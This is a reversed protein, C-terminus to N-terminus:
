IPIVWDKLNSKEAAWDRLIKEFPNFQGSNYSRWHAGADGMAYSAIIFARREWPSAGSYENLQDSLFSYEHWKAMALIVDRRVLPSRFRNYLAVLADQNETSKMESLIRVAYAAHLENDLVYARSIIHERIRACIELQHKAPLDQFSSKITIAVIPFLPYLAKLNDVLTLVANGKISSPLHRIASIIKKTLAGHVRSKALERNLLGLIDIKGLESQLEEYDEAAHPSYPDYRLNLAFLKVAEPDDGGDPSFFTTQGAVFEQGSMIRTKSKQITLGDNRILKESVFQLKHHADDESDAFIHYDDAYRCFKIGHSKLIQDTLNLVLEVLIRAAPGGVPVGYSNTNSFHTLINEIYKSQPAHNPLQELANELRHHPIRHYCDSIDCLVVYKHARAQQMSHLMFDRWTIDSRFLSEDLPEKLRYSFVMQDKTPIRAVEIKKALSITSGLLFANWFPDQQTAWRFGSIGVPTLTRIHHPRHQGFCKDFYSHAQRLLKVVDNKKDHLVYNEIPFPFIDTDGHVDINRVALDFATKPLM